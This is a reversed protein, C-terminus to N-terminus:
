FVLRLSFQIQRATGATTSIVGFGSGRAINSPLGFNVQNFVNFFEARFQLVGLEENGRRGFPTDKIVAVDYDSYGPGRFTNRGLTGFVGDNPGTGVAVDIPISFFSPNQAGRGFYAERVTRSASFGPKAIQDPRDAGAAGAGTQQFGFNVTFPLGTMLTTINLLQWGDTFRKGLPRLLSVRGLPLAQILSLAFVRTLDFNSPGKEAGPNWPNQPSIYPSSADDLSKSYTYSAQFGLGFRTSNKSLNTQLAQYTSHARSTMLRESGYGGVPQGAPNFRTFPAFAEAAGGYSNPFLVSALHVGVTAVYNASIRVQGFDHDIGATYTGIYGNRFDKAIGQTSLLQLQNGPTLAALANQFRSIDILTNPPVKATNGDPFVPQGAPTYVSPLNVPTVANTFPVPVGPQPSIYPSFLFPINGTLYNEQWLNPVLTAIAGGAHMVTRATLRYDIALRPAWGNWDM